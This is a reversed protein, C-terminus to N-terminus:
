FNYVDQHSQFNHEYSIETVVDYFTTYKNVRINGVEITEYVGDKICPIIRFTSDFSDYGSVSYGTETLTIKIGSYVRLGESYGNYLAVTKNEEPIFISNTTRTTSYSDAIATFDKDIFIYIFWM